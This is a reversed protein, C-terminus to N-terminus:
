RASSWAAREAISAPASTPPWWLSRRWPQVRLRRRPSARPRQGDVPRGRGPCGRPDGAVAHARRRRAGPVTRAAGGGRRHRRPRRRPRPRRDRRSSTRVHRSGLQAIGPRVASLTSLRREGPPPSWPNLLIAAPTARSSAASGCASAQRGCTGDPSVPAITVGRDAISRRIAHERELGATRERHLRDAAFILTNGEM